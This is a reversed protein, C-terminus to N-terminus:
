NIKVIRLKSAILRPYIWYSATANSRYSLYIDKNCTTWNDIRNEVHLKTQIGIDNFFTNM